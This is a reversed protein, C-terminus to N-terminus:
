SKLLSFNIPLSLYLMLEKNDIMFQSFSWSLRSQHGVYWIEFMLLFM